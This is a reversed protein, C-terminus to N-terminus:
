DGDITALLSKADPDGKSARRLVYEYLVPAAAVIRTNSAQEDSGVFGGYTAAVVQNDPGMVRNPSLENYNWPGPTYKTATM